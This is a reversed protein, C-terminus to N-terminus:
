LNCSVPSSVQDGQYGLFHPFHLKEGGASLSKLRASGRAIGSYSFVYRPCLKPVSNADHTLSTLVNLGQESHLVDGCVSSCSM